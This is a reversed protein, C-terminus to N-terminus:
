LCRLALERTLPREFATSTSLLTASRRPDVKQINRLYGYSRYHTASQTLHYFLKTFTRLRTSSSSLETAFNLPSLAPLRLSSDRLLSTRQSRHPEKSM